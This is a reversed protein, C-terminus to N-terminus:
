NKGFMTFNQKMGSSIAQHLERNYAGPGPDQNVKTVEVCTSMAAAPSKTLTFEKNPTYNGPAPNENIKEKFRANRNFANTTESPKTYEYKTTYSGPGLNSQSKNRGGEGRDQLSQKSMTNFLAKPKVYDVNPNYANPGPADKNDYKM